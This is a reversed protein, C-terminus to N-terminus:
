MKAWWARRKSAKKPKNEEKNEERNEEENFLVWEDTNPVKNIEPVKEEQSQKAIKELIMKNMDYENQKASDKDIERKLRPTNNFMEDLESLLLDKNNPTRLNNEDENINKWVMDVMASKFEEISYRKNNINNTDTSDKMLDEAYDDDFFMKLVKKQEEKTLKNQEDDLNNLKRGLVMEIDEKKNKDEVYVFKMFDRFKNLQMEYNSGRFYTPPVDIVYPSFNSKFVEKAFDNKAYNNIYRELAIKDGKRLHGVDEPLNILRFPSNVYNKIYEM